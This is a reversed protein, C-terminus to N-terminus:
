QVPSELIVMRTSWSSLHFRLRAMLLHEASLIVLRDAPLHCRRGVMMGWAGSREFSDLALAIRAAVRAPLPSLRRGAMGMWLSPGYLM